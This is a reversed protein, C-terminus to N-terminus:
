DESKSLPRFYHGVAAVLVLLGAMQWMNLAPAHFVAHAVGNWAMTLVYDVGWAILAILTVGILIAILTTPLSDNSKTKM